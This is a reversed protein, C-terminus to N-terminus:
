EANEFTCVVFWVVMPKGKIKIIKSSTGLKMVKKHTDALKDLALLVVVKEWNRHM